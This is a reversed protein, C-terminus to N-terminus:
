CQYELIQCMSTSNTRSTGGTLGTYNEMHGIDTVQYLLEKTQCQGDFPSTATTKYAKKVLRDKLCNMMNNKPFKIAITKIDNKLKNQFDYSRNKFKIGVVPDQLEDLEAVLPLHSTTGFTNRRKYQLDFTDGTGFIM